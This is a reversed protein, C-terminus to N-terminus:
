WCNGIGIWDKIVARRDMGIEKTIEQQRSIPLIEFHRLLNGDLIGKSLPKSVKDNRAISIYM